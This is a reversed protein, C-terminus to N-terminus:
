HQAGTQPRQEAIVKWTHSRGAQNFIGRVTLIANSNDTWTLRDRIKCGPDAYFLVRHYIVQQEREHEAVDKADAAEVACPLSSGAPGYGVVRGGAADTSYVVPSITVSNPQMRQSAAHM